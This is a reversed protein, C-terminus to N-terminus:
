WSPLAPLPGAPEAALGDGSSRGTLWALLARVPGTVTTAPQDGPPGIRIAAAADSSRLTAAPSHPGAFSPAVQELCYTAFAAPWDAPGYGVGLDVHHIEVETLRRWLTYWGSHGNGQAGRVQAAWAADPLRAAEADLAAASADLDALLEAASRGAGREIGETRAEPSSYQPTPVGTRAWILLNRLSDANRAIHTLLHGRTWGPLLSPERAQQDSVQEASERLLSTAAVVRARLRAATGAPDGPEIREDVRIAEGPDGPKRPTVPNGPDVPMGPTLSDPM